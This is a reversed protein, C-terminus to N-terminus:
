KVARWYLNSKNDGLKLGFRYIISLLIGLQKLNENIDSAYLLM